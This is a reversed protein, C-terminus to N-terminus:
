WFGNAEPFSPPADDHYIARAAGHGDNGHQQGREVGSHREFGGAQLWAGRNGVYSAELVLNQTLERQVGISWQNVRPPRGGDRPVPPRHDAGDDSSRTGNAGCRRLRTSGHGDAIVLPDVLDADKAYLPAAADPGKDWAQWYQREM